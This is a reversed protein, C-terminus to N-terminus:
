EKKREKTQDPCSNEKNGLYEEVEGIRFSPM